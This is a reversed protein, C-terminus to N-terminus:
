QIRKKTKIPKEIHKKGTVAQNELAHFREKNTTKIDSVIQYRNENLENLERFKLYESLASSQVFVIGGGAWHRDGGAKKPNSIWYTEESEIDFYNGGVGRGDWTKFARNNFYVTRGSASFEVYAIWAPGDSSATAREIYKLQKRQAM